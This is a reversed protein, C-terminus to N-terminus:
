DSSDWTTRFKYTHPPPWNPNTGLARFDEVLYGSVGTWGIGRKFATTHLQEKVLELEKITLDRNFTITRNFDRLGRMPRSTGEDMVWDSDAKIVPRPKFSRLLQKIDHAM